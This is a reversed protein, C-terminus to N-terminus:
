RSLGRVMGTSTQWVSFAFTEPTGGRALSAVHDQEGVAPAMACIGLRIRSQDRLEGEKAEEAKEHAIAEVLKTLVVVDTPGYRIVARAVHRNGLWKKLCAEFWRQVKRGFESASLKRRTEEQWPLLTIWQEDQLKRKKAGEAKEQELAELIKTVVM